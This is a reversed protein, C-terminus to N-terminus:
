DYGVWGYGEGYDMAQGMRLKKHGMQVLGLPVEGYEMLYDGLSFKGCLSLVHLGFSSKSDLSNTGNIEFLLECICYKAISGNM